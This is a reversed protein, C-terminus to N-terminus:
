VEEKENQVFKMRLFETGTRLERIVNATEQHKINEVSAIIQALQTEMEKQVADLTRISEPTSLYTSLLEDTQKSLMELNHQDEAGLPLQSFAVIMKLVQRGNEILAASSSSEAWRACLAVPISQESKDKEKSNQSKQSEVVSNNVPDLNAAFRRDFFKRSLIFVPIAPMVGAITPLLHDLMEIIEVEM